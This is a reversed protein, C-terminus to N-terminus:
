QRQNRNDVRTKLLMLLAMIGGFAGVPWLGAKDVALGLLPAFIMVYFSGAQSDMSLITAGMDAASVNDIRSMLIPRWVNQLIIIMVFCGVAVIDSHRWFAFVSVSFLLVNVAWLMTSAREVGGALNAIHHSKRSAVSSVLHLLFFVSGVLIASRREFSWAILVPLALAMQNLLPQLYDKTLTANGKYTMSELITRRLAKNKLSDTITSVLRRWLDGPSIKTEISRDLWKPYSLFNVINVMYPLISLWFVATYNETILVAATAIIVSAASGIQSWSRTYGYVQTKEDTRGETDLWDFIMAKHTGTRFAEGIAFFFMAAFLTWLTNSTAFIIFSIIYAVFSAIMSRRRGFTDAILGSPVEMIYVWVQRFGILLGITLFSLGKDRLALIIFPEYYKQNKLFGYLSFRTLMKGTM